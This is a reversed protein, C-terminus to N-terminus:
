GFTIGGSKTLLSIDNWIYSTDIMTPSNCSYCNETEKIFKKFLPSQLVENVSNKRLNALPKDKQLCNEVDGNSNVFM